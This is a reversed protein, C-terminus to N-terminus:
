AGEEDDGIRINGEGGLGNAWWGNLSVTSTKGSDHTFLLFLGFLGKAATDLCVYLIVETDVSVTRSGDALGWVIPYATWLVLTFLGLSSFFTATKNDKTQVVKRGTVGFIFVIVLYAACAMAYWAWAVSQNETLGAFLGTLVMVLDFVIAVITDAGSIGAVLALDLLLLPTTLSWDVYRAWYVERAVTVHTDPIGHGHKQTVETYRYSIGSGVAMAYYSLTAFTTIFLTIVHFLRKSAPQRYAQISFILTFVFMAVFGIWLATDGVKGREQYEVPNPVVTPIPAVSSHHHHGTHTSTPLPFGPTSTAVALQALVGATDKFM